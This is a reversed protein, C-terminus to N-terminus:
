TPNIFLTCLWETGIATFEDFMDVIVSLFIDVRGM